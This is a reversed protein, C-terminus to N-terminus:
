LAKEKFALNNIVVKCVDLIPLAYEYTKGDICLSIVLKEKSSFVRPDKKHNFLFHSNGKELFLPLVEQEFKRIDFFCAKQHIEFWNKSIFTMIKNNTITIKNTSGEQQKLFNPDSSLLGNLTENNLKISRVDIRMDKKFSLLICPYSVHSEVNDGNKIVIYQHKIEIKCKPRCSYNMVIPIFQQIYKLISGISKLIKILTAAEM